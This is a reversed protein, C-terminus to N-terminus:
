RVVRLACIGPLGLIAMESLMLEYRAVPSISDV